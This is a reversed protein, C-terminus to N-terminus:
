QRFARGSFYTGDGGGDIAGIRGYPAAIISADVDHHARSLDPVEERAARHVSEIYPEFQLGRIFFTLHKEPAPFDLVVAFAGDLRSRM